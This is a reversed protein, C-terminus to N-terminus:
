LNFIPENRYDKAMVLFGIFHINVERSSGIRTDQAFGWDISVGSTPFVFTMAVEVNGDEVAVVIGETVGDVVGVSSGGQSGNMVSYQM